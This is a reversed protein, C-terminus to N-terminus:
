HAQLQLTAQRHTSLLAHGPTPSCGQADLSPLHFALSWSTLISLLPLAVLARPSLDEPPSCLHASQRELGHGPHSPAKPPALMMATEVACLCVSTPCPVPSGEERVVEEEGPHQPVVADATDVIVAECPQAVDPEERKIVVM